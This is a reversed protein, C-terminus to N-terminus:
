RNQKTCSPRNNPRMASSSAVPPLRQLPHQSVAQTSSHLLLQLMRVEPRRSNRSSVALLHAPFGMIYLTM